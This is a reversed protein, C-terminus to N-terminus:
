SCRREKKEMIILRFIVQNTMELRDPHLKRYHNFQKAIIRATGGVAGMRSLFRLLGM